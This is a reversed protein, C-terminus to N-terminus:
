KFIAIVKYLCLNLMVTNMHFISDRLDNAYVNHERYKAGLAPPPVTLAIVESFM